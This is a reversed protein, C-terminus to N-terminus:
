GPPRTNLAIDRVALLVEAAACVMLGWAVVGAGLAVGLEGLPASVVLSFVGAVMVLIGVGRLIIGFIRMAPYSGRSGTKPSYRLRDSTAPGAGGPLHRTSPAAVAPDSLAAAANGGSRAADAVGLLARAKGLSSWCGGCVIKKGQWVYPTELKGISRGCNECTEM